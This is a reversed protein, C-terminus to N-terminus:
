LGHDNPMNLTYVVFEEISLHLFRSAALVICIGFSRKTLGMMLSVHASTYGRM